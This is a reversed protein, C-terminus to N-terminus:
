PKTEGKNGPHPWGKVSATHRCLVNRDGKKYPPYNICAGQKCSCPALARELHDNFHPNYLYTERGVKVTGRKGHEPHYKVLKLRYSRLGALLKRIM